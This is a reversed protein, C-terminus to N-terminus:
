LVSGFLPQELKLKNRILKYNPIIQGVHNWFLKNHSMVKTHVLEHILVYEILEDSLQMLFMNLTINGKTDCSGWRGKLTRINIQQFEFNYRQSLQILKKPLFSEAEDRLVKTCIKKSFTQVEKDNINLEKPLKIYVTDDTVKSKLKDLDNFKIFKIRHFRGIQNDENIGVYEKYNEKIFDIKSSVFRIAYSYTVWVPFTVRIGNVPSYTLRISKNRKRKILSVPYKNELIITKM